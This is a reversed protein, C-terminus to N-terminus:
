SRRVFTGDDRVIEEIWGVEHLPGRNMGPCGQAEEAWREPSHLVAGWFPWTRCQRPRDAYVTCGRLADYLVCTGDSRERLSTGRRHIERTYAARFESEALGLRDALVEIEVDSVRV